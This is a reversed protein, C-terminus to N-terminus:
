TDGSNEEFPSPNQKEQTAETLKLTKTGQKEHTEATASSLIGECTQWSLEPEDFLQKKKEVLGQNKCHAKEEHFQVRRLEQHVLYGQLADESAWTRMTKEHIM